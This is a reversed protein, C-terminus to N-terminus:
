RARPAPRPPLAPLPLQAALPDLSGVVAAGHHAARAAAEVPDLGAALYYTLAGAFSDGAGYTGGIVDTRPSAFRAVGGATEVTGGQAGETM